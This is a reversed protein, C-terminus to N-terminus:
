LAVADRLVDDRFLPNLSREIVIEVRPGLLGELDNLLGGPFWPTTPGVVDILLDVDSGQHADGRAVSGFVRVNGAGHKAAIAQIASRQARLTELSSM